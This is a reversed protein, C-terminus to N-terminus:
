CKRAGPMWHIALDKVEEKGVRQYETGGMPWIRASPWDLQEVNGFFKFPKKLGTPKRIQADICVYVYLPTTRRSIEGSAM